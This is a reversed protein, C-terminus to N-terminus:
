TSIPTATRMAQMSRRARLRRASRPRCATPTITHAFCLGSKERMIELVAFLHDGEYRLRNAVCAESDKSSQKRKKEDQNEAHCNGEIVIFSAGEVRKPHQYGNGRQNPEKDM